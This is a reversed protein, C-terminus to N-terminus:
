DACFCAQFGSAPKTGIFVAPQGCEHGFTGPESNVCRPWFRSLGEHPRSYSTPFGYPFCTAAMRSRRRLHFPKGIKRRRMAEAPRPRCAFSGLPAAAGGPGKRFSASAESSPITNEWWWSRTATSRMPPSLAMPEWAAHRAELAQAGESDKLDPGQAATYVPRM